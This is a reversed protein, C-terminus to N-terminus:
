TARPTCFSSMADPCLFDVGRMRRISRYEAVCQRIARLVLGGGAVKRGWAPASSVRLARASTYAGWTLAILMLDWVVQRVFGPLSRTKCLFRMRGRCLLASEADSRGSLSALHGVSCDYSVANRYGAVRLRYGLDQDESGYIYYPDFGGIERLARMRAMCGCTALYDCDQPRPDGPRSAVRFPYGSRTLGKGYAVDREGAFWAIEGGISGLSPDGDLRQVMNSLVSPAPFLIDSDLFLAYSGEAANIGQNRRFAPGRREGDGLVRVWPCERALTEVTRDTSGDDVVLVEVAKYDQQQIAVVCALVEDCRNWTPIIVSVKGSHAM